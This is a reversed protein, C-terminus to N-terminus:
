SSHEFYFIFRDKTPRNKAWIKALPSSLPDECQTYDMGEVTGKMRKNESSFSIFTSKKLDKAKKNLTTIIDSSKGQKEKDIRVWVTGIELWNKSRTPWLAGFAYIGEKDELVFSRDAKTVELLKLPSVRSQKINPLGRLTKSLNKWKWHVIKM